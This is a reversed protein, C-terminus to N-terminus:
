GKEKIFDTFSDDDIVNSAVLYQRVKELKVLEKLTHEREEMTRTLKIAGGTVVYIGPNLKIAYIRLWSAHKPRDKLRAKERGLRMESARSNELPRFLEDLNAEPNIDMILCELEDSDEMTDYVAEDLRTIKFYSVLDSFNERFFNLLWGADNWQTFVKDLENLQEEAYHVAWLRGNHKIDEFTMM